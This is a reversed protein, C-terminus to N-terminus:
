KNKRKIFFENWRRAMVSGGLRKGFLTVIAGLLVIVVGIMQTSTITEELLLVGFGLVFIPELVSLLSAKESSIYQLARLLLLIPLATCLTGLAIINVWTRFDHPVFFSGDVRAALFCTVLCGISVMLTSVLPSVKSNKSVILYCAYSLASAVALLLGFFDFTLDQNGGLLCMGLLILGVAGYYTKPIESKYLFKNLLIVMVPYTFFMVMALGTSIYKCAIFYLIATISYFSVGYLFVKVLEKPKKFITTYTPLLCLAVVISGVVFRWFLMNYVSFNAQMLTVGFYGLLGFCLGSSVAYLVGRNEKSLLKMCEQKRLLTAGRSWASRRRIL